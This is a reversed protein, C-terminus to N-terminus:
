GHNIEQELEEASQAAYKETAQNLRALLRGFIEIEDPEWDALLREVRKRRGASLRKMLNRGKTTAQLQIARRDDPDPSRSLLGARELDAVQRSIHSADFGTREAIATLRSPGCHALTGLVMLAMRDIRSDSTQHKFRTVNMMLTGFEHEM